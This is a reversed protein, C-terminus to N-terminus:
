VIKYRFDIDSQPMFHINISASDQSSNCRIVLDLDYKVCRQMYRYFNAYRTFLQLTKGQKSLKSKAVNRTNNTFPNPRKTQTKIVKTLM